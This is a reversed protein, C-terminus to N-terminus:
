LQYRHLNRRLESRHDPHAIAILAEARQRLTKGHLYAIGYETVVYHVHGRTTVVGAGPKIQNVIRSQGKSQSPLAIIPKGGPSLAAGRMFDMQGGIGSYLRTGISDSVVQGTLDVEIASNIAVMKTNRRIVDGDNVWDVPHMEVRPNDHVFDYVKRSGNVFSAVIKCPHYGKCRGTVVGAEVLDVLGDSFMETHVGLDRKDRLAQLVANPIAGIGMQLTSGDEVLTGVYRGIALEIENPAPCAVEHLPADLPVLAAFRSVHVWSNGLTRPVHRNVMGIVFRANEAAALACDVSTGLSVFGHADPPSVNLLAADLRLSGNRFLRPIESLFVPTYDGRGANIADRTNSGIFLANVRFHGAHEPTIYPAPGETHLHVIEVDHLEPARATLAEILPTPTAAAGHVFVRMGSQVLQVAEQPTRIQKHYQEKWPVM